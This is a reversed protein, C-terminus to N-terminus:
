FTTFNDLVLFNFITVNSLKKFKTISKFYSALIKANEQGIHRIGIAYIFKTLSLTKSKETPTAMDTINSKM